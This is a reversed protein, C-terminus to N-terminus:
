CEVRYNSLILVTTQRSADRLNHIEGKESMKELINVFTGFTRALVSSSTNVKLSAIATIKYRSM